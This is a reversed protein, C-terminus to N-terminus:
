IPKLKLSAKHGLMHKVRSFAGCENLFTCEAITPYLTWNIDTQYLQNITNYVKETKKGTKQRATRNMISLLTNFDESILSSGAETKM